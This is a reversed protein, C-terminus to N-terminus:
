WTLVLEPRLPVQCSAAFEARRRACKVFIKKIKGILKDVKSFSYRVLEAVSNLGHALCLCHLLNPYLEKLYKGAKVCYAAGDKLFLLVKEYDLDGGFM